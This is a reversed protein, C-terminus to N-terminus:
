PKLAYGQGFIMIGKALNVIYADMSYYFFTKKRLNLALFPHLVIEGGGENKLLLSPLQVWSKRGQLPIQSTRVADSNM